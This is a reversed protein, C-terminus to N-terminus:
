VSRKTLQRKKGAFDVIDNVLKSLLDSKLDNEGAPKLCPAIALSNNTASILIDKKATIPM